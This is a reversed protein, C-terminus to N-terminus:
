KLESLEEPGENARGAQSLLVEIRDIVDSPMAESKVLFDDAGLQAAKERDLDRILATLMIVPIDKTKPDSKLASLTEYGNSKPMMIDLLIIDPNFEGVKTLVEEGSSCVIAKYGAVDFREKYMDALTLDDDAMLVKSGKPM